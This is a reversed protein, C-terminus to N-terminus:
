ALIGKNQTYDPTTRVRLSLFPVAGKKLCAGEPFRSINELEPMVRCVRACFGMVTSPFECNEVGVADMEYVQCKAAAGLGTVM